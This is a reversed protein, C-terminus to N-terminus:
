ASVRHKFLGLSNFAAVVVAIFKSLAPASEGIAGYINEIAKIAAELKDKGASAPMMAEISQIVGIAIPILKLINTM